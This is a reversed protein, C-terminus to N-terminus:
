KRPALFLVKLAVLLKRFQRAPRLRTSEDLDLPRPVEVSAATSVPVGCVRLLAAAANRNAGGRSVTAERDRCVLHLLMFCCWYLQRVQSVALLAREEHEFGYGNLPYRKATPDLLTPAQFVIGIKDPRKLRNGNRSSVPLSLM